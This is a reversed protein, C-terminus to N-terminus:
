ADSPLLRGIAGDPQSTAGQASEPRRLAALLGYGVGIWVLEKARKVLVFAATVDPSLGMAPLLTAYGADQVGLGAPAVNGMSRLMSIGVECALAFVLNTPGGVLWIVMATDLAEFLWCGLFFASATRTAAKARGVQALRADVSVAGDRWREAKRRLAPWPFAGLLRHLALAMGGGRMGQGLAISLVLPALASAGIAWPLWPGGFSRQSAAALMSAGCLAGLALYFAHARMVLWKRAVALMGGDALPVGFHLDLLKATASDAVLFGAPATVHLAETAIRIPLLRGFPVRRGMLGLLIRIGLADLAMAGLFPLLTLPALAGIRLVAHLTAGVDISRFARALLWAACGLIVGTVVARTASRQGFV